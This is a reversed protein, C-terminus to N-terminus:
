LIRFLLKNVDGLNLDVIETKYDSIEIAHDFIPIGKNYKDALRRNTDAYTDLIRSATEFSILTKGKAIHNLNENKIIADNIKNLKDRRTNPNMHSCLSNFYLGIHVVIPAWSANDRVSLKRNDIRVGLVSQIEDTVDIGKRYNKLIMADIGFESSWLDLLQVYDYYLGKDLVEKKWHEVPLSAGAKSLTSLRSVFCEDQRRLFVLIKVDYEPLNESLYQKIFGIGRKNLRSIFHESSILIDEGWERASQVLVGWIAKYDISEGAPFFELYKGNNDLNHICNVLSSQVFKQYGIEPYLVGKSRLEDRNEYCFNQIATTGTKEHGIHIYLTPM